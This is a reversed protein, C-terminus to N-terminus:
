NSLRVPQSHMDESYGSLSSITDAHDSGSANVVRNFITRGSATQDPVYYVQAELPFSSRENSGVTTMRDTGNVVRYLTRLVTPTPVPAKPPPPPAPSATQAGGGCNSEVSALVVVLWAVILPHSRMHDK